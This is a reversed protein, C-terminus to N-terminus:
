GFGDSGIVVNPHLICGDGIECRERIVVGPWLTCGARITSDDLITVNPHIVSGAGISVRRGIVDTTYTTTASDSM